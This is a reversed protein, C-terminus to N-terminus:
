SPQAMERFRSYASEWQRSSRPECRKVDFSNRVISRAESLNKLDGTAVAQVLVNGIGTAEVPGAIVPRGCADATMQNLLENQCGGGVIHIVNLRRGLVDELGELAQRYALALSELAARVFEGATTPPTQGSRRCFSEMRAPMDNPAVFSEHNPDIMAGFSKAQAAMQTLEADSHDKGQRQWQRRCEQILWLGMINKLFRITGGVGAENTYNYLLTKENIIPHNVEVGMLSWTGSSIYCWDNGDAPVAAVASATDHCAPAIVPVSGVKCEDCVDRQLAGIVTGSPVLVPLIHSPLELSEIL